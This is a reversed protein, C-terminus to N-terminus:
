VLRCLHPRGRRVKRAAQLDQKAQALQLLSLVAGHSERHAQPSVGASRTPSAARGVECRADELSSAVARGREM